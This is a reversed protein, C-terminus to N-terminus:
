TFIAALALITCIAGGLMFLGVGAYFAPLTRVALRTPLLATAAASAALCLFSLGSVLHAAAYLYAKWGSVSLRGSRRIPIGAAGLHFTRAAIGWGLWALLLLCPVLLLCFVRAGPSTHHSPHPVAGPINGCRPRGARM